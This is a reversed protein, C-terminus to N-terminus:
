IGSEGSLRASAYDGIEDATMHQGSLFNRDFESSGLEDRVALKASDHWTREYPPATPGAHQERIAEAAGIATAATTQEADEIMWLAVHDLCHAFCTKRFSVARYSEVASELRQGALEHDGSFHAALAFVEHAHATILTDSTEVGMAELQSAFTMAETPDGFQLEWLGLLFLTKWQYFGKTGTEAFTEHAQILLERVQIPNQSTATM